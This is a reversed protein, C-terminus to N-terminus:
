GPDLGHTVDLRVHGEACLHQDVCVEDPDVQHLVGSFTPRGVSWPTLYWLSFFLWLSKLTLFRGWVGTLFFMAALLCVHDIKHPNEFSVALECVFRWSKGFTWFLVATGAGFTRFRLKNHTGAESGPQLRNTSFEPSQSCIFMPRKELSTEKSSRKLSLGDNEGTSEQRM